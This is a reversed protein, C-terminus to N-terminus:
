IFKSDEELCGMLRVGGPFGDFYDLVEDSEKDRIYGETGEDPLIWTKEAYAYKQPKEAYQWSNSQHRAILKGDSTLKWHYFYYYPRNNLHLKNYLPQHDDM